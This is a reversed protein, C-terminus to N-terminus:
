ECDSNIENIFDIIGEKRDDDIECNELSLEAYQKAIKCKNQKKMILSLNFYLGVKYRKIPERKLGELLIKESEDFRRQENLFNGYNGYTLIFSKDTKLSKKYLNEAKETEGLINVTNALANMIIVNNQEMENAKELANKSEEFNKMQAENMGKICLKKAEKNSINLNNYNFNMIADTKENKCSVIILLYFILIIKKMTGSIRKRESLIAM